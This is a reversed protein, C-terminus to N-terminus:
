LVNLSYVIMSAYSFEVNPKAICVLLFVCLCDCEVCAYVDHTAAFMGVATKLDTEPLM